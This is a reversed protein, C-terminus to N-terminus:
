ITIVVKGRAHGVVMKATSPGGTVEAGFTKALQVAFPGVAGSAGVILAWQRPQVNWTV